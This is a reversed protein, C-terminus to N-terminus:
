NSKIWDYFTNLCELNEELDGIQFGKEIWLNIRYLCMNTQVKEPKLLLANLEAEQLLDLTHVIGTYLKLQECLKSILVSVSELHSHKLLELFKPSFKIIKIRGNAGRRITHTKM